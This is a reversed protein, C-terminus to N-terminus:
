NRCSFKVSMGSRRWGPVVDAPFHVFLFFAAQAPLTNYLWISLMLLGIAGYLLFLLLMAMVSGTIQRTRTFLQQHTRDFNRLLDVAIIRSISAEIIIDMQIMHTRDHIKM